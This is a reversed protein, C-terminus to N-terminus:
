RMRFSAAAAKTSQLGYFVSLRLLGLKLIMKASRRPLSFVNECAELGQEYCCIALMMEDLGPGLHYLAENLRRRADLVHAPENAGHDKAMNTVGIPHQWNISLKEYFQGLHFDRAFREGAEFELEGIGFRKTKERWRLWILSSISVNREVLGVDPLRQKGRAQHQEMYPTDSAQQRRLWSRGQDSLVLKGAGQDELLDARQWCRVYKADIMIATKKAAPKRKSTIQFREDKSAQLFIDPQSLKKGYQRLIREDAPTM